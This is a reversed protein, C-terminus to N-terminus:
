GRYGVSRDNEIGNYGLVEKHRKETMHNLVVKNGESTDIVYDKNKPSKDVIDIFEQLNNVKEGNISKIFSNDYGEEVYGLTEDCDLVDLIFLMEQEKNKRSLEDITGEGIISAVSLNMGSATELYERSLVSIIMGSLIFYPSFKSRQYRGLIKTEGYRTTVPIKMIVDKGNRLVKLKVKDGMFSQTILYTYSLRKNVGPLSIKGDNRIKYNNIELIVDENKLGGSPGSYGKTTGNVSSLKDIKVVLIGSQDEKMKYYKRLYINEMHQTVIGFSPFGGYKKDSFAEKLFHSLVPVPIFYGINQGMVHGQFAVGVVKGDTNLVPGGSNGSNIPADTETSLLIAGSNSYDDMETRTVNGWTQNMENGGMPFGVVHMKDGVVAMDGIDLPKAIKKFENSNSKLLALDADDDICLVEVPIKNDGDGFRARIKLANGAVHANTCIYVEGTNPNKVAFGSGSWAAQEPANWPTEVSPNFGTTFIKLISHDLEPLVATKVRKPEPSLCETDTIRKRNMM